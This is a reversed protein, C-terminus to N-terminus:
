RNVLVNEELEGLAVDGSAASLGATADHGAAEHGLHAQLLRAPHPM